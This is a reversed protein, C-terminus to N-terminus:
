LRSNLHFDMANCGLDKFAKMWKEFGRIGQIGGTHYFAVNSGASIVGSEVDKCLAKMAKATYIPDLPINYKKYFDLAFNLLEDNVKAYGGEHAIDRWIAREVGEFENKLGKLAPYILVNAQTTQSLIARATTGTGLATAIHSYTADILKFDSFGLEGLEFNGGEPVVFSKPYLDCLESYSYNRLKTYEDRSVFVLETGLDECDKLTASLISPREGRIILSLPIGLKNAAYSIAFAHNSYAGGFSLINEKNSQPFSHITGYLKRWKNGQLPSGFYDDYLVDVQVNTNTFGPISVSQLLGKNM